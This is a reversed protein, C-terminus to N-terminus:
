RRPKRASSLHGRPNFWESAMSAEERLGRRFSAAAGGLDGRQEM